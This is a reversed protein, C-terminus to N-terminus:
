ITIKYQFTFNLPAEMRAPRIVIESNLANNIIVSFKGYKKLSYSARLNMLWEGKNNSERYGGLGPIFSEFILDVKEIFGYYRVDLGFTFQKVDIEMDSKFLHRSRYKLMPDLIEDSNSAISKFFQGLYTGVNQYDPNESLDVPYNYTYGGQWRFPIKGFNGKGFISVEFGAIRARAVNEARFGIWDLGPTLVSDPAYIDFRFETMEWYEMWFISFDLYALFENIKIGQKVGIESNFGYEPKIDPNAFINVPGVSETIFREAISPFRFGQGFSGRLYTAKGAQYNIGFSGVPRGNSYSDDLAFYEYRFGAGINLRGITQDLQAFAAVITGKHDGLDQDEMVYKQGQVGATTTLGFGFKRQFQYEGIYLEVNPNAVTFKLDVRNFRTKLSHRNGGKDFYTVWPDIMITRRRQLSLTGKDREGTSEYPIYFNEGTGNWFIYDGEESEMMNVSVGYSLGQINVPRHRFKLSLRRHGVDLLRVFGITKNFSASTVIDFAGIRQKHAFSGGYRYPYSTAETWWAADKNRPKAYGNYYIIAETEPDDASTAWGTRVNVLGNLASAGYLASSASKIVEVQETIELPIFNWKIENRDVSLQPLGDILLLVRSGAGFSYGSGGRITIQNDFINVGAVKDVAEALNVSNTNDILDNSVVEISVTEESLNREYKSGSVVVIDLQEASEILKVDLTFTEGDALKVDRNITKYGLYSIVLNHLGPTVELSYKGDLDTTTGVTDDILVNVGILTEKTKADTIVGQLTATQGLVSLTALM